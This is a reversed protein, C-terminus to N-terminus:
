GRESLLFPVFFESKRLDYREKQREMRERLLELLTVSGTIGAIQAPLVLNLGYATALASLSITLTALQAGHLLKGAAIRRAEIALSAAGARLDWTIEDIADMSTAQSLESLRERLQHNFLIFSDTERTAINAIDLLSAGPFCPLVLQEYVLIDTFPSRGIQARVANAPTFPAGSPSQELPARRRRSVEQSMSAQDDKFEYPLFVCRGQEVLQVYPVLYKRLNEFSTWDRRRWGSASYSIYGDSLTTNVVAVTLDTYMTSISLLRSIAQLKDDSPVPVLWGSMDADPITGEQPEWKDEVYSTSETGPYFRECLTEILEFARHYATNQPKSLDNLEFSLSGELSKITTALERLESRRGDRGM